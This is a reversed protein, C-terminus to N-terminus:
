EGDSLNKALGVYMAFKAILIEVDKSDKCDRMAKVIAQEQLALDAHTTKSICAPIGMKNITQVLHDM